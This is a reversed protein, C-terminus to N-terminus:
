FLIKYVKNELLFSYSIDSMNHGPFYVEYLFNLFVRISVHLIKFIYM